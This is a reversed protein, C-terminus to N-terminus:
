SPRRRISTRSAAANGASAPSAPPSPRPDSSAGSRRPQACCTSAAQTVLCAVPAGTNAGAPCNRRPSAHIATWAAAIGMYEKFARSSRRLAMRSPVWRERWSRRHAKEPIPLPVADLGATRFHLMARPMHLASTTLIVRKFGRARAIAATHQANEQTNSSRTESILAGVPVGQRGIAYAMMRVEAEAGSLVVYPARGALWARAAGALRSSELKRPDVRSQGLWGYQSGGGLVVIADSPPLASAAPRPYRSELPTRLTDSAVPISWTASWLLALLALSVGIRRWRFLLAVIAAAAIWLSLAPPHSLSGATQALSDLMRM